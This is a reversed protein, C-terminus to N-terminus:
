ELPWGHQWRTAAASVRESASASSDNVVDTLADDLQDELPDADPNLSGEGIAGTAAALDVLEALEDASLDYLRVLNNIFAAITETINYMWAEIREEGILARDCPTLNRIANYLDVLRYIYQWLADAPLIFGTEASGPQTAVLDNVENRLEVYLASIQALLDGERESFEASQRIAHWDGDFTPTYGQDSLELNWSMIWQGWADNCYIGAVALDIPGVPDSSTGSYTIDGIVNHTSEIQATGLSFQRSNGAMAGASTHTMTDQFAIPGQSFSAISEGDLVWSGALSGDIDVVFEMNVTFDGDVAIAVGEGSTTSLGAARGNGLWEGVPLEAFGTPEQQADAAGVGLSAVVVGTVGIAAVTKRSWVARAWGRQVDEAGMDAVRVSGAPVGVPGRAPGDDIPCM